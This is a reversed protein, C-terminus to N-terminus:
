GRLTARDEARDDRGIKWENCVYLPTQLTAQDLLSLFRSRSRNSDNRSAEKRLKM